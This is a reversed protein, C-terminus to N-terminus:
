TLAEVYEMVMREIRAKTYFHDNGAASRQKFGKPFMAEAPIGLKVAAAIGAIDVGSQGGSIIKDIPYFAHTQKLIDYVIQNVMQQTWGHKSFTNMSNGAVNLTVAQGERRLRIFEALRRAPNEMDPTVAFYKPGAASKTLREGATTYDLAIAATV